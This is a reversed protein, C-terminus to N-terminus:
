SSMVFTSLQELTVEETSHGLTGTGAYGRQRSLIQLQTSKTKQAPTIGKASIQRTISLMGDRCWDGLLDPKM